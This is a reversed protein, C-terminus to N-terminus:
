RFQKWFPQILLWTNLLVVIMAAFSIDKFPADPSTLFMWAGLIVDIIILVFFVYVAWKRWLQIFICCVIIVIINASTFIPNYLIQLFLSDQLYPNPPKPYLSSILLVICFLILVDMWVNFWHFKHKGTEQANENM